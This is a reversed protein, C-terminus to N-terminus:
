KYTAISDKAFEFSIMGEALKDRVIAETRHNYEIDVRDLLAPLDRFCIQSM